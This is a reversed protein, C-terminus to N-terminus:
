PFGRQGPSAWMPTPLCSAPGQLPASAPCDQLQHLADTCQHQSIEGGSVDRPPLSKPPESSLIPLPSLPLSIYRPAGAPPLPGEAAQSASKIRCSKKWLLGLIVELPSPGVSNTKSLNETPESTGGIKLIKSLFRTFIYIFYEM